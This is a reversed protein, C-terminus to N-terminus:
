GGLNFFLSSMLSSAQDLAKWFITGTQLRWGAIPNFHLESSIGRSSM